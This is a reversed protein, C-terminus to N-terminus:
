EEVTGSLVPDGWPADPAGQQVGQLGVVAGRSLWGVADFIGVVVGHNPLDAILVLCTCPLHLFQQEPARSVVQGQVDMLGFSEDPVESFPSPIVAREDYVSLALFKLNMAVVNGCVM